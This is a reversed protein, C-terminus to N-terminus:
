KIFDVAWGRQAAYREGDVLAASRMGAPRLPLEVALPRGQHYLTARCGFATGVAVVHVTVTM